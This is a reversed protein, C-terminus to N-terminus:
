KNDEGGRGGYKDWWVERWQLGQGKKEEGRGKRERETLKSLKNETNGRKQNSVVIKEEEEM